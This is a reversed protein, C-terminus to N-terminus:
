GVSANPIGLMALIQGVAIFQGVSMALELYEGPTFHELMEALLADPVNRTQHM